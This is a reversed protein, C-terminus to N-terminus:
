RIPLTGAYANVSPQVNAVLFASVGILEEYNDNGEAVACPTELRRAAYIAAAYRIPQKCLAEVEM